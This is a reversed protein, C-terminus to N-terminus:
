SFDIEINGKAKTCCTLIEDEEIFALPDLTYEVEGKILKTRCVGCYGDRCNFNPELQHKELTELITDNHHTIVTITKTTISSPKNNSNNGGVVLCHEKDANDTNVKLSSSGADFDKNM